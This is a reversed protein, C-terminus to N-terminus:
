TEIRQVSRILLERVGIHILIVQATTLMWMDPRDMARRLSCSHHSAGSGASPLVQTRRRTTLFGSFEQIRGRRFDGHGESRPKRRHGKLEATQIEVSILCIRENSELEKDWEGGRLQQLKFALKTDEEEKEKKCKGGLPVSNWFQASKLQKSFLVTSVIYFVNLPCHILQLCFLLSVEACSTTISFLPGM